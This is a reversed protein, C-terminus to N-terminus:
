KLRVGIRQIHGDFEFPRRKSYSTSVPSGLDIGVDFTESATFAAPASRKTTLTGVTEGDVRMVITAPGGPRPVSTDIVIKHDGKSIREESKVTYREVIFL